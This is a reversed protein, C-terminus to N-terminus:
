HCKDTQGRIPWTEEFFREQLEKAFWKPKPVSKLRKKKKKTQKFPAYKNYITNLTDLWCDLAEAPETINYVMALSSLSLDSRFSQENLHSFCRCPLSPSPSFCLTTLLSLRVSPRLDLCFCYLISLSMCVCFPSISVRLCLSFTFFSM